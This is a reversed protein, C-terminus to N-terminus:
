GEGAMAAAEAAIVAELIMTGDSPDTPDARVGPVPLAAVVAQRGAPVQWVLSILLSDGRPRLALRAESGPDGATIAAALSDAVPAPVLEPAPMRWPIDIRLRIGHEHASRALSQALAQVPDDDPHVRMLNRIFAEEEDARLRVDADSPDLRGDVIGLLLDVARSEALPAYQRRTRELAGRTARMTSEALQRSRQEEDLRSSLGRLLAGFAAGVLVGFSAPSILTAVPAETLVLMSALLVAWAWPPGIAALVAFLGCVAALGWSNVLDSSSQGALELLGFVPGLAAAVLILGWSAPAESAVMALLVAIAATLALDQLEPPPHGFQLWGFGITLVLFTSVLAVASIPLVGLTRQFRDIADPARRHWQLLVTTGNGPVSRIASSGGAKRMGDEIVASLGFRRARREPDFGVGDDRVEARVDLEGEERVSVRIWLNAPRGHRVANNVAERIAGVLADRVNGPLADLRDVGVGVEVGLARVTALDGSLEEGLSAEGDGDTEDDRSQAGLSQLVDAAERCREHLAGIVGPESPIGGRSIATLTNLVTEHLLREHRTIADQVRAVTREELLVEQTDKTLADIQLARRCLSVRATVAALAGFAGYLLAEAALTPDARWLLAGVIAAALTGVAGAAVVVLALGSAILGLVLLSAAVERDAGGGMAAAVVAASLVISVDTARATAGRLGVHRGAVLVTWGAVAALLAWSGPSGWSPRYTVATALVWVPQMVVLASRTLWRVLGIVGHSTARAPLPLFLRGSSESVHVVGSGHCM